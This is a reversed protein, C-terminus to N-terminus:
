EATPLQYDKYEKRLDVKRVKGTATRPLSDLFLVDDPTWWTAVKGKFWKLIEEKSLTAGEKKVIMLLPRETWQPHPVGIVSADAVCPHGMATNELEISSIWEGGSKIVDKSRDVIQMYGDPDITSVDGTCFWGDPDFSNSKEEMKYYQSSVWPGKVKLEGYAVGDWPLEDGKVDTIKMDVGYVGRGQKARIKLREQASLTTLSPKLTNFTGLPSMETMGWAHQIEVNHKDYAEMLSPPCAAGGVVMRDVTELTKGSKELYQLLLQWVTPVGAAVTVKEENMLSTLIEGDAMKPGPFIIKAGVMPAAFPVNWANIHFMPIVPLVCDKISLNFADPMAIGFSHLVTSRHSYVVGKPNGTTGSTYCMSSATNEDLDPWDFSDSEPAILTEYCHINKLPTEPMHAEDTLLVIGEILPLEDIIKEVLPLFMPDLFIWKDEAHNMIYKFQDEFLRPNITHCVFGSCSAGYYIEFHRYDNWAITALRDGFQVGLNALANALKRSRCFADSYTYRHRPNDATVSVIEIDKFHKEAHEMISTITLQSNMMLGKMM